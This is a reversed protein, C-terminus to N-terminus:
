FYNCDSETFTDEQANYSVRTINELAAYASTSQEVFSDDIFEEDSQNLECVQEEDMQDSTPEDKEAYQQTFEM